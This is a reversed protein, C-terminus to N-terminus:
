SDYIFHFVCRPSSSISYYRPQLRPAVAAFFVGLPTKASPFEAMVELLSRQSAVIWQSYDDQALLLVISMFPFVFNFSLIKFLSCLDLHTALITLWAVKSESEKLLFFYICLLFFTLFTLLSKSVKGQPSSLFKLREVESPEVAHAAM